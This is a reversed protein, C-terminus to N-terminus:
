LNDYKKPSDQKRRCTRKVTKPLVNMKPTPVDDTNNADLDLVNGMERIASGIEVNTPRPRLRDRLYRLQYRTDLPSAAPPFGDTRETAWRASSYIGAGANQGAIQANFYGFNDHAM